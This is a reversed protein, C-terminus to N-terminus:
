DLFSAVITKRGHGKFMVTVKANDGSGEVNLVIGRGFKKHEVGQGKGIRKKGSKNDNGKKSVLNDINNTDTQESKYRNKLLSYSNIKISDDFSTSNLLEKPLEEIFRSPISRQEKGFVRRSSASSLFLHKQARTIGVYLLRREEEIQRNESLSRFHPLLGEELGAIFVYPFELGKAMHLTMLTVKDKDTSFRDIDSALSIWDLFSALDSENEETDFETGLNVLESINNLREEEEEIMESYKTRDLIAEMLDKISSNRSIEVLSEMLQDFKRLKSTLNPSFLNNETAAKISGLLSVRNENALQELRTLTVKGIGRPPTNIIRKLSVDDSPNVIIRLYAIMDKIEARQYFGTGGVITYPIGNFILEDEISKSQNNTRYFVAFDNYRCNYRKKMERINKVVRKAEERDDSSNYYEILEGPPNDTWLTKEKRETNHKILDNSLRIINATSRYNKELKVVRTDPFDKEFNLINAIDAGRWSYISQNDDGVVFINKKLQALHRVMKYQLNNTDQYEDVLIHEFKNQYKELTESSNEFLRVTLSLLDSFDMANNKKLTEDYLHFLKRLRDDLVDSEIESIRLGQNKLSDIRTRAKRPEIIRESIDLQKLCDKIIRIQDSDDYITFNPKYGELKRIEMKLIRLCISHFTGIWLGHINGQILSEVRQKMENAAKNTFTVALIRGPPVDEQEIMHAIRHTIIRTKGSGAGALILLPGKSHLVADSQNKNLDSVKIM